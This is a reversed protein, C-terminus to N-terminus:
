VYWSVLTSDLGGSIGLIVKKSNTHVIRKLLGCVQINFIEDCSRKMDDSEPIFPHPDVDRILEFNRPAISDCAIIRANNGRQANVYTSNTRREVRLKEVDIQTVMMQPELLFREAEKLLKGNEFIMANGGYVVDQTSEGFGCGSYVYGTITRASQQALLSKLYVHKGILEDSASLNFVLDAGALALTNSPPAPAWVDECIEVGFKVGDSTEFLTPEPTVTVRNGAFRIETPQLDQSSAFWRKEYFESYNPLYTKPIFALIGGKQIVVACNLLLDGVVVPIGVISIVDMKRTFDLLKVVGAEAHELLAQQRFLDQCTYGTVSLEPFVIIEVGSEEAQSIMTEMMKVNYECDAVKVLPIAAAVKIYGNQM